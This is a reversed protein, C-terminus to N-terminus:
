YKYGLLAMTNNVCKHCSKDLKDIWKYDLHFSDLEIYASDQVSMLCCVNVTHVDCKMNGTREFISEETSIIREFLCVLNTEEKAKRIAAEKITENKYIRGGPFWYQGKAPENDRLLLLCKGEHVILVDICVIPMLTKIEQYLPEPIFSM